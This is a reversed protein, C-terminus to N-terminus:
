AAAIKAQTVKIQARIHAAKVPDDKAFGLDDELNKAQQELEARNLENVNVAEEALVSCLAGGVDAFGGAVFIKKQEGSPLTVTVVGPRLSSLLPAHDVLVGFEGAEGPIVAMVAQESFLVKEPSVLEFQFTGTSQADAM